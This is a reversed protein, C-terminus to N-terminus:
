ADKNRSIVHKTKEYVALAEQKADRYMGRMDEAALKGGSAFYRDAVKGLAWTTVFASAAGVASGLFPLVNLLSHVAIRMGTAGLVSGIISRAAEKDVKHGWYQGIDRVLKVQVSVVLLDTLISFVPVPVAGAVASVVSLTLTHENVATERQAPDAIPNINGPVLWDRADAYMRRLLTAREDPIHLGDRVHDLLLQREPLRDGEAYALCYAANYTRERAEFSNIKKLEDDLVIKENLLQELTPGGPLVLEQFVEELVSREEPTLAGGARAFYVLVRLSAAVEEANMPLLKTKDADTELPKEVTSAIM